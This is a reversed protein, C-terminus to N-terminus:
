FKFYNEGYYIPGGTKIFRDPANSFVQNLISQFLQDKHSKLDDSKVIHLIMRRMNYYTEADIKKCKNLIDNLMQGIIERGTSGSELYAQLLSKMLTRWRPDDGDKLNPCPESELFTDIENLVNWKQDNQQMKGAQLFKKSMIPFKQRIRMEAEVRKFVPDLLDYIMKVQKESFKYDYLSFPSELLARIENYHNPCSILLEYFIEPLHNRFHRSRMYLRNVYIFYIDGILNVWESTPGEPCRISKLFKGLSSYKKIVADYLDNPHVDKNIQAKFKQGMQNLSSIKQDRKQKIKKQDAVRYDKCSVKIRKADRDLGFEPELFMKWQGDQEFAPEKKWGINNPNAIEQLGTLEDDAYAPKRNIETIDLFQPKIQQAPIKKKQQVSMKKDLKDDVPNAPKDKNTIGINFQPKKQQVPKKLQSTVDANAEKIRPKKSKFFNFM